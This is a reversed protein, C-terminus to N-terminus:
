PPTASIGNLCIKTLWDRALASGGVVSQSILHVVKVIMCRTSEFRGNSQGVGQQRRGRAAAMQTAGEQRTAATGKNGGDGQQRRGRTAATRTAGEQRIAVTGKHGSDGQQQWGRRAKKVFQRRGRTAATRTAGEQCIAVTGKSGGTGMDRRRQLEAKSRAPRRCSSDAAVLAISDAVSMSNPDSEEIEDELEEEDDDDEDEEEKSAM